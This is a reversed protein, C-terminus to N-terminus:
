GEEWGKSGILAKKNFFLLYESDSGVNLRINQVIKQRLIKLSYAIYVLLIINMIIAAM